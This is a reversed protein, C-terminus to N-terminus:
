FVQTGRGMGAFNDKGLFFGQDTFTRWRTEEIICGRKREEIGGHNGGHYTRSEPWGQKQTTAQIDSLVKGEGEIERRKKRGETQKKKSSQYRGM